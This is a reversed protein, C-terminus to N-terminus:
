KTAGARAWLWDRLARVSLGQACYPGGADHLANRLASEAEERAGEDDRALPWLGLADSASSAFPWHRNWLAVTERGGPANSRLAAVAWDGPVGYSFRAAFRNWDWTQLDPRAEVLPSLAGCARWLRPTWTGLASRTWDNFRDYPAMWDADSEDMKQGSASEGDLWARLPADGSFGKSRRVRPLCAFMNATGRGELWDRSVSVLDAPRVVFKSRAAWVADAEQGEAVGGLAHWLQANIKAAEESNQPARRPLSALADLLRLATAGSVDCASLAAGRPTITWHGEDDARAWDGTMWADFVDSLAVRWKTQDRGCAGFASALEDADLPGFEACHWALLATLGSEWVARTADSVPEADMASVSTGINAHLFRERQVGARVDPACYQSPGLPNDFVWTDGETFAGARGSRGAINRFLGPSLPRWGREDWGLWDALITQNFPLDVGEALTRTAALAVIEGEGVAREILARLDSPLAASHWAVGHKLLRALPLLTRYRTEILALAQARAGGPETQEPFAAMLARALGRAGRRTACLCLVAGGFEEFRGRAGFAVNAWLAGEQKQAAMFGEGGRLDRRPWALKTEGLLQAGRGALEGWWEVRGDQRWFALRRATPTWDLRLQLRKPAGIWEGLPQADGTAASLLLLRVGAMKFRAVLTELRAGRAGEGVLHAEDVVAGCIRESLKPDLRWAGDFREPTAVIIAGTEPLAVDDSEGGLWARVEIDLGQDLGQTHARLAAVVGRGLAVYPVLFVALPSPQEESREREFRALRELLFLEGLWTKGTGPPLAALAGSEQSLFGRQLAVKQPPLLLPVREALLASWKHGSLAGGNEDLAALTGLGRAGRFAALALEVFQPWAAEIEAELLLLLEDDQASLGNKAVRAAFPSHAAVLPALVPSLAAVLPAIGQHWARSSGGSPQAKLRPFTRRLVVSASPFNGGLAFATAAWLGAERAADGGLGARLSAGDLARAAGQLAAVRPADTPDDSLACRVPVPWLAAERVLSQAGTVVEDWSSECAIGRTLCAADREWVWASQLPNTEIGEIPNSHSASSEAGTEVQCLM